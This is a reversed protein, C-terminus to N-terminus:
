FSDKIARDRVFGLIRYGWYPHSEISEAIRRGTVNTGAILVTRYNYGELRVSRAILRVVLMRALLLICALLVFLLIWLRSIKDPGLLADDIRFLYIFLVLLLTGISCVRLIDWAEAELPTTRQSHYLNFSLLLVGWIALVLPLLPLYRALPYLNSEAVGLRPLVASRLWFAVLFGSAVLILDLAFLGGAVIRAREKLM